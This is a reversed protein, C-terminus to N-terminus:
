GLSRQTLGNAPLSPSRRPVPDGPRIDPCPELSLEGKKTRGQIKLLDDDLSKITMKGVINDPQTQYARNVINRKKKYTLVAGATSPGYTKTQIETANVDLGDIARLADQILTVHDGASGITVHASDQTLCANLRANGSFLASILSM